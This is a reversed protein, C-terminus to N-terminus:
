KRLSEGKWVITECMERLRDLVRIGYMDELTVHTPFQKKDLSTVRNSSLHTKFGESVFLDYRETILEAIINTTNGFKSITANSSGIDDIYLDAKLNRGYTEKLEAVSYYEIFDAIDYANIWKFRRPSDKFLKQFIKMLFSKGVGVSGILLIGKNNEELGKIFNEYVQRYVSLMREDELHFNKNLKEGLTQIAESGRM